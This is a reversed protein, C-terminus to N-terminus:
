AGTFNPRRKTVFALTGEKFDATGCIERFAMRESGMQQEMTRDFSGRLLKKIRGYALTPGSALRRVIADTASALEARPVVRNVLGLALADSAGYTDSLLAMELSRRLGVVRPLAWTATADPTAGIAAYGLNIRTDDAAIALDAALMIGVGAGAVAGHVSAVVPAPLDTLHLLAPDICDLLTDVLTDASPTTQVMRAVDGGAMFGKGEGSLVVVRVDSRSAIERCAALFARALAEDIANLAQPRNFRIRAVGDAVDFLIPDNAAEM